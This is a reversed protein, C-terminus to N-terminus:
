SSIIFKPRRLAAACAACSVACCACRPDQLLTCLLVVSRSRLAVLVFSSSRAPAISAQFLGALLIAFPQTSRGCVQYDFNFNKGGFSIGVDGGSLSTWMQVAGGASAVSACFCLLCNLLWNCNRNNCCLLGLMLGSGLAAGVASGLAAEITIRTTSCIDSDADLNCVGGSYIHMGDVTLDLTWLNFSLSGVEPLSCSYWSYTQQFVGGLLLAAGLLGCILAGCVRGTPASSAVM